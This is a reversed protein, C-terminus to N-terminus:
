ASSQAPFQRELVTACFYRIEDMAHDHEKIPRDEQPDWRYLGFERIADACGAGILLRGERLLRTVLRIGPLVANKAKRVSFVGQSRLTAIMSAASPDIIVKEVPHAGALAVLAQHYQEDTMLRGTKRGDYYFERLRVARERGVCWLGASFPNMTGYDVSIYYRGQEPLDETVYEPGFPYVQGEAVVWQGLVYRKYFTGSYLRRYRQRVQEPLSPNDEMTMQLRLLNKQRAPLIWNKYFWHEPGEPNCSFWLKAGDVSCRAVAQELFSRSLLAAEDLLVGALTIGQILQCASDDQGGFLYYTNVHGYADTVVLKNQASQLRVSFLEGLWQPLQEIINRRVSAITKGCIGFVQNHFHTMSWLFFGLTLCVTKGSRVAGDCIIGDWADLGPRNWWSIALLQKKSFSKYRM